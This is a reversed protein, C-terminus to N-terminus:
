SARRRQLEAYSPSPEWSRAAQVDWSTERVRRVVAANEEALQRRLDEALQAPSCHSRWCEAAIIVGAARRPDQDPLVSWAWGGYRPDGFDGSRPSEPRVSHRMPRVPAATLRAADTGTVATRRVARSRRRTRSCSAQAATIIAEQVAVTLRDTTAKASPPLAATASATSARVAGPTSTPGTTPASTSRKGRRRQRATAASSQPRPVAAATGSAPLRTAVIANM